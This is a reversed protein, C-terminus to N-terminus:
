ISSEQENPYGFVVEVAAGCSPCTPSPKVEVAFGQEGRSLLRPVGVTVVASSLRNAFDKLAAEDGELRKREQPSLDCGIFM